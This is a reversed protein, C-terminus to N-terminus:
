ELISEESFLMNYLDTAEQLHQTPVYIRLCEQKGTKIVFGVGYVPMTICPIRNDELVEVLMKAWMEEKEVLFEYGHEM